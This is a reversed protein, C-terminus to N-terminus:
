DVSKGKRFAKARPHRLSGDPTYGMFEVTVWKGLYESQNNWIKLKSADDGIAGKLMSDVKTGDELICQLSGLTGGKISENFGIIQVEIDEKPKYKWLQKSRKYEYPTNLTRIMLGEYGELLFQEFYSDIEKANAIIEISEVEKVVDSYFYKLVKERTTYPVDLCVDFLHFEMADRLAQKEPTINVKSGCASATANFGDSNEVIIEKWEDTSEDYQVGKLGHKYIEGDLYYEEIGYKSNVYDYIKDFSKRLSNSIQPFEPVLDGGSSYFEVDDKTIHIRYRHGDLKKQLYIKEGLIGIAELDKRDDKKNNKDPKPHYKGGKMPAKITATEDKTKVDLINTVHGSKVKKNIESEMDFIAQEFVSKENSRGINSGKTIPTITQIKKGDLLGSTAIINSLADNVYEVRITWERMKGKSDLQYYTHIPSNTPVQVTKNKIFKDFSM